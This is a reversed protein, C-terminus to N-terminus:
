AAGASRFQLPEPDPTADTMMMEIIRSQIPTADLQLTADVVVLTRGSRKYVHGGAEALITQNLLLGTPRLM